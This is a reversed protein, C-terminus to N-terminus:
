TFISIPSLDSAPKSPSNLFVIWLVSPIRLLLVALLSRRIASDIVVILATPKVTDINVAMTTQRKIKIDLALINFTIRLILPLIPSIRDDLLQHPLNAPQESRMGYLGGLDLPWTNQLGTLEGKDGLLRIEHRIFPDKPSLYPEGCIQLVSLFGLVLTFFLRM